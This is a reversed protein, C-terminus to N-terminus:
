VFRNELIRTHHTSPKVRAHRFFLIGPYLGLRTSYSWRNLRLRVFFRIIRSIFSTITSRRYLRRWEAYGPKSPRLLMLTQQVIHKLRDLVFYSCPLLRFVLYLSHELCHILKIVSYEAYVSNMHDRLQSTNQPTKNGNNALAVVILEFSISLSSFVSPMLLACPLKRRTDAACLTILQKNRIRVLPKETDHFLRTSYSWCM